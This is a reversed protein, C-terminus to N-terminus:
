TMKFKGGGENHLTKFGHSKLNSESLLRKENWRSPLHPASIVRRVAAGCRPCAALPADSMRQQAEFVARCQECGRQGEAAIYQYTPM